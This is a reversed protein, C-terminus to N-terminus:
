GFMSALGETSAEKDEETEESKNEEESEQESSQQPEPEPEPEGKIVRDIKSAHAYAKALMFKVTEETAYGIEVAFPLAKSYAEKLQETYYETDINIEPFFKREESHFACLPIFGISFPKIDLKSLVDAVSSNIEEGKKVIVKAKQINLKGKEVKVQLGVSSLESIAPGPPLDTPGAPIEIDEPAIQGVKAKAPTKAKVLEAALEFADTDSFLLAFSEDINRELKELEGKGVNDLARYIMTKKPVRVEAKGRLKKVIEQFKSAPISKISVVLITKSNKILKELDKVRKKKTEPITRTKPM